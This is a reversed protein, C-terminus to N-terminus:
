DDNSAVFKRRLALLSFIGDRGRTPPSPM